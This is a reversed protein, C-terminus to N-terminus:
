HAKGAREMEARCGDCICDEDDEIGLIQNADLRMVEAIAIVWHAYENQAQALEGFTLDLLARGDPLRPEDNKPKAKKALKKRSSM